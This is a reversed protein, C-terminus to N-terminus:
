HRKMKYEFNVMTYVKSLSKAEWAAWHNLIQGGVPIPIQFKCSHHHYINVPCTPWKALHVFTLDNHEVGPFQIFTFTNTVWDHRVRQSGMSPLGGTEQVPPWIRLWQAAQSAM